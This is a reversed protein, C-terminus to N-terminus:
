ERPEPPTRPCRPTRPLAQRAARVTQHAAACRSPVSCSPSLAPAAVCLALVLAAPPGQLAVLATYCAGSAMQLFFFLGSAAGVHEGDYRMMGAQCTAFMAGVGLMCVAMPLVVSLTSHPWLHVAAPMLLAAAAAVLSATRAIVELSRSAGIRKAASSGGVYGLIVLAYLLGFHTPSAGLEVQIVESSYATFTFYTCWALSIAAAFVRFGRHALVRRYAQVLGAASLWPPAPAPRGADARANQAPLLRLVGLAVCLGLVVMFAFLVRWSSHQVVLGALPPSAAPAVAIVTPLMTLIPLRMREPLQRQVWLRSIVTGTGAGLGSPDARDPVGPPQPRGSM